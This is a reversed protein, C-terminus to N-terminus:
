DALEVKSLILRKDEFKLKKSNAINPCQFSKKNANSYNMYRGYREEM